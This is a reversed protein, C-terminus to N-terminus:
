DQSPCILSQLLFHRQCSQISDCWICENLGEDVAPPAGYLRRAMRYIVEEPVIRSRLKNRELCIEISPNIWVGIIETFGCKRALSIAARRQKRVANTADYIAFEIENNEIANIAQDFQSRVELWIKLWSGQIAEEGFLQARIADTSIIRTHSLSRAFTSKGSGPLGILLILRVKSLPETPFSQM